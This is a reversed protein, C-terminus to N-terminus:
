GIDSAIRKAIRATRSAALGADRAADTEAFRAAVGKSARATGNQEHWAYAYARELKEYLTQCGKWKPDDDGPHDALIKKVAPELQKEVPGPYRRQFEAVAENAHQLRAQGNDDGQGVARKYLEAAAAQDNIGQIRNLASLREIPDQIQDIERVKDLIAVPTTGNAEALQRHREMPDKSAKQQLTAARVQEFVDPDRKEGDPEIMKNTDVDLKATDSQGSQVLDFDIETM